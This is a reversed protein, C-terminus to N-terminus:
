PGVPGHDREPRRDMWRGRCATDARRGDAPRLHDRGDHSQCRDGVRDGSGRGKRFAGYAGLLPQSRQDLNAKVLAANLTSGDSFKVGTRLKITLVTKTSNFTYSTALQPVVTGTSTTTFLSDYMGQWFTLDGGGALSPPDYNFPAPDNDVAISGSPGAATATGGFPVSLLAGASLLAGVSLLGVVRRFFASRM